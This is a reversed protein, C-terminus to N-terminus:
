RGPQAGLAVRFADFPSTPPTAGAAILRMVDSLPVTVAAAPLLGGQSAAAMAGHASAGAPTTLGGMGAAIGAMTTNGASADIASRLMGLTGGANSTASAAGDDGSRHGIAELLRFGGSVMPRLTVPEAAPEMAAAYAPSFSPVYAQAVESVLAIGPSAPASPAPSEPWSFLPAAPAPPEPIPPAVQVPEPLPMTEAPHQYTPMPEPIMSEAPVSLGYTAQPDLGFDLPVPDPLSGYSGLLEEGMPTNLPPLEAPVEAVYDPLPILVAPEALTGAAGPRIRVPENGFSRYRFGPANMAAAVRAVDSDRAM